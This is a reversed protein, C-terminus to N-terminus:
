ALHAANSLSPKQAIRAMSQHKPNSKTSNPPLEGLKSGRPPM